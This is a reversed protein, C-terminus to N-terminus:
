KIHIKQALKDNMSNAKRHYPRNGSANVQTM